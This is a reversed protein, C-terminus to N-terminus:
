KVNECLMEAGEYNYGTVINSLYKSGDFDASIFLYYLRCTGTKDKMVVEFNQYRKVAIGTIQNREIKWDQDLLHIKVLTGDMKKLGNKIDEELAADTRVAPSMRRNKIEEVNNKSATAVLEDKTGISKVEKSIDECITVLEPKEGFLKRYCNYKIQYSQLKCYFSVANVKRTFYKKGINKKIEAIISKDTPAGDIVMKYLSKSPHETTKSAIGINESTVFAELNKQYTKLNSEIIPINEEKDTELDYHERFYVKKFEDEFANLNNREQKKEGVKSKYTVKYDELEKKYPALEKEDYRNKYLDLYFQVQGWNGNSSPTVAQLNEAKMKDMEARLKAFDLAKEDKPADGVKTKHKLLEAEMSTVDFGPEYKKINKLATEAQSIQNKYAATKEVPDIGSLKDIATKYTKYQAKAAPNTPEQALGIHMQFVLVLLVHKARISHILKVM